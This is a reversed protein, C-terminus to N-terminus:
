TNGRIIQVFPSPSRGLYHIQHRETELNALYFMMFFIMTERERTTAMARETTAASFDSFASPLAQQELPLAPQESFAFVEQELSFAVFDEEVAFPASTRLCYNIKSM